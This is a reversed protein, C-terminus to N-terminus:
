KLVRLAAVDDDQEDRGWADAHVSAQNDEDDNFSDTEKPTSKQRAAAQGQIKCESTM